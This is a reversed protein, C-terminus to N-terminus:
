AIQALCYADGEANRDLEKTLGIAPRAPGTM